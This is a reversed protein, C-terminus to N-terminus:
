ARTMCKSEELRAELGDPNETSNWRPSSTMRGLLGAARNKRRSWIANQLALSVLSSGLLDRLSPGWGMEGVMGAPENDLSETPIGRWHEPSVNVSQSREQNLERFSPEGMLNGVAV